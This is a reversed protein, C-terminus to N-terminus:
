INSVSRCFDTMAAANIGAGPRAGGEAVFFWIMGPAAVPDAWWSGLAANLAIDVPTILLLWFCAAAHLADAEFARSGLGRATRRKARELWWMVALSLLTIAIGVVIPEPRETTILGKVAQRDGEAEDHHHVALREHRYRRSVLAQREFSFRYFIASDDVSGIFRRSFTPNFM